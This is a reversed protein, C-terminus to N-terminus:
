AYILGECCLLGFSLQTGRRTPSFFINLSMYLFIFLFKKQFPVPFPAPTVMLGQTDSVKRSLLTPAATGTEPQAPETGLSIGQKRYGGYDGPLSEYFV